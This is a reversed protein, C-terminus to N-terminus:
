VLHLHIYTFTSNKLTCFGFGKKENIINRPKKKTSIISRPQVQLTDNSCILFINM